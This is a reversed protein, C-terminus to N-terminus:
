GGISTSILIGQARTGDDCITQNDANPYVGIVRHITRTIMITYITYVHEIVLM